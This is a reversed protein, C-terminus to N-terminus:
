EGARGPAVVASPASSARAARVRLRELGDGDGAEICARAEALLQQYLHLNHLTVLRRGLWEDSRLLHALYARSFRNAPSTPTDPDLPRPDDLFRGNKLNLRGSWTYAQGHRGMRTPLVCDFLDVGRVVAEVIDVPHGVGMLYRVKDGPLRPVVVDVMAMMAEHGEGVSLGGIALGDLDMAALTDAHEARLDPYLGGQVIGFLATRDPRTRADLCRQLWRTTRTMAGRTRDETAPTEICEDLAMAVDVGFAEQIAVALEPTLHREEGDTPSRFRVGDETLKMRHQLSFVQYGGSDTLLPGDWGMFTHLGGLDRIREHGPREWLHYTNALVISTGATVLEDPDLGKVTGRTGVPMFAPTPVAGHPTHLTGTRATGLTAGSEFWCCRTAM